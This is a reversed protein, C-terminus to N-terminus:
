WFKWKNKKEAKLLIESILEDSADVSHLINTIEDKNNAKVAADFSPLLKKFDLEERIYAESGPKSFAGHFLKDYNNNEEEIRDNMFVYLDFLTKIGAEAYEKFYDFYVYQKYAENYIEAIMEKSLYQRLEPRYLKYLLKKNKNSYSYSLMLFHVAKQYDNEIFSFCEGLEICILSNFHDVPETNVMESVYAILDKNTIGGTYWNSLMVYAVFHKKTVRERKNSYLYDFYNLGFTFMVDDSLGGLVIYDIDVERKYEFAIDSLEGHKEDTFVIVRRSEMNLLNLFNNFIAVVKQDKIRYNESKSEEKLLPWYNLLDKISNELIEFKTHIDM